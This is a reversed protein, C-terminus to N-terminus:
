GALLASQKPRKMLASEILRVLSILEKETAMHNLFYHDGDVVYMLKAQRALTLIEDRQLKMDTSRATQSAASESDGPCHSQEISSHYPQAIVVDNCRKRLAADK